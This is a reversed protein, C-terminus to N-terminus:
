SKNKPPKVPIDQAKTFDLEVFAIRLFEVADQETMYVAEYNGTWPGRTTIRIFKEGYVEVLGDLYRPYSFLNALRWEIIKDAIRQALESRASM